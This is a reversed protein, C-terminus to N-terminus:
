ILHAEAVSEICQSHGSIEGCEKPTVKKYDARAGLEQKRLNTARSKSNNEEANSEDKFHAGDKPEALVFVFLCVLLGM